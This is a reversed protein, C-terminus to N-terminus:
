AMRELQETSVGTIAERVEAAFDKTLLHSTQSYCEALVDRLADREAVLSDLAALANRDDGGGLAERIVGAADCVGHM